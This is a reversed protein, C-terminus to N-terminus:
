REDRLTRALFKRVESWAEAAAKEDYRPSSPNAFGHEADFPRISAKVGATELAAGFAEVTEPPISTDRSGVVAFLEARMPALEAPVTVPNGYYMVTADLEPEALALLLAQRAGFSWGISATRPARVREDTRLRQHASRLTTLARAEDIASVAKSADEITTAVVGGYLDVAIAAYGEAALRRAWYRIHENQGWWEHIVVIGPVPASVGSPLVLYAQTGDDLTISVGQPLAADASSPEEVQTIAGSDAHADPPADPPADQAAGLPTQPM